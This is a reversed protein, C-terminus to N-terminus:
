LDCQLTESSSSDDSIFDLCKNKIGLQCEEKHENLFVTCYFTACWCSPFRKGAYINSSTGSGTGAKHTPATPVKVWTHVESIHAFRAQDQDCIQIGARERDTGSVEEPAKRENIKRRISIVWTLFMKWFLGTSFFFGWFSNCTRTFELGLLCFLLYIWWVM